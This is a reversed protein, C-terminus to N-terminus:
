DEWSKVIEEFKKLEAESFTVEEKKMNAKRYALYDRDKKGMRAQGQPKQSGGAPNAGTNKARYSYNAGSGKSDGSVMKGADSRSDQYQKETQGHKGKYLEEVNEVEEKKVDNRNNMEADKNLAKVIKGSKKGAETGKDGGQLATRSLNGAKRFMTNRKDRSLEKYGEEVETEEKKMFKVKIKDLRKQRTEDSTYGVRKKIDEDSMKGEKMAKGIAKRRKALYKDSSDKDGDNDIDGDEQGVPDMKKEYVSGYAETWGKRLASVEEFHPNKMSTGMKEMDKRAKENNKQRKKMDPELYSDDKKEEIVKSIMEILGGKITERDEHILAAHLKENGVENNLKNQWKENLPKNTRYKLFEEECNREARSAVKEFTKDFAESIRVIKEQRHAPLEGEVTSEMVSGVVEHVTNLVCGYQFLGEVIEECVELLDGETLQGLNMASIQDKSNDLEEKITTDHVASYAKYLDRMDQM